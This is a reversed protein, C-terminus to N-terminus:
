GGRDSCSTIPDAGPYPWSRHIRPRITTPMPVRSPAMLRITVINLIRAGPIVIYRIGIKQQVVMTVESSSTSASGVNVEARIASYTSRLKPPCKKSGDMPPPPAIRYWFMKQNKAWGSTYM